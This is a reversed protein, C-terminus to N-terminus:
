WHLIDQYCEGHAFIVVIAFAALLFVFHFNLCQWCFSFKCGNPQQEREREGGRQAAAAASLYQAADQIQSVCQRVNLQGPLNALYWRRCRQCCLHQRRQQTHHLPNGPSLVSHQSFVAPLGSGLILKLSGCSPSDTEKEGDGEKERTHSFTALHCLFAPLNFPKLPSPVFHLMHWLMAFGIFLVSLVYLASNLLCLYIKIITEWLILYVFSYIYSINNIYFLINFLINQM